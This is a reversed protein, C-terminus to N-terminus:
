PGKAATARPPATGPNVGPRKSHLFAAPCRLHHHIELTEKIVLQVPQM